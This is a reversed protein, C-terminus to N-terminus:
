RLLTVTGTATLQRGDATTYRCIYAYASPPSPVGRYTGDWGQLIDTTHFICDGWRTYVKLDYDVISKGYGRFLNNPPLGPTFVNPFWMSQSVIPVVARATDACTATGVALMVAVSDDTPAARYLLLSGTDLSLMGNIHWERRHPQTFLDELTLDLHDEDLVRPSLGLLAEVPFVPSLLLTDRHPCGLTDCYAAELIYRTTARPALVLSDGLETGPVWGGPLAADAPTSRLRYCLTDPLSIAYGGSLTCFARAQVSLSPPTEARLTLVVISDAGEAVPLRTTDAAPRSFPVGRWVLPLSSACVTTDHRDICSLALTVTSDCGLASTHIRSYVGPRRYRVGDLLYYSGAAFTDALQVHYTPNVTLYLTTHLCGEIHDYTGSDTLQRGGFSYSEGQCISAHVTDHQLIVTFSQMASDVCAGDALMAYLKVTHPGESFTRVPNTLSSTATDDFVWLYEECPYSTPQTHDANLSIHSNNIFQNHSSCSNLPQRTFAATPYRGGVHTTLTFGTDNDSLLSTLHCAYDGPLTVRLTRSTSLTGSPNALAYWRYRFGEPATLTNNEQWGGCSQAYLQRSPTQLTFYTYSAQAPDSSVYFGSHNSLTLLITQGHFPSLDFGVTQWGGHVRREPTGYHSLNRFYLSDLMLDGYYSNGLPAGTSDSVTIELHPQGLFNFRFDDVMDYHVLLLSYRNTDIRLTYTIAEQGATGGYSLPGWRGLRVSACYGDPVPPTTTDRGYRNDHYHYYYYNGYYYYDSLYTWYYYKYAGQSSAPHVTHRSFRSECGYDVINPQSTPTSPYAHTGTTCRVSDSYISTYNIKQDTHLNCATHFRLTSQSTNGYPCYATVRAEYDSDPPLNDIVISTDTTTVVTGSGEAFGAPGYEVRFHTPFPNREWILRFRTTSLSIGRVSLVPDPCRTQQPTFRYYRYQGPWTRRGVGDWHPSVRHSDANIIALRNSDLLMGVHANRDNHFYQRGYLFTISNDEERFQVQWVNAIYNITHYQEVVFVRHGISDTHFCKYQSPPQNHFGDDFYAFMGSLHYPDHVHVTTDPFNPYPVLNNVDNFYLSGKSFFLLRYFYRDYVYFPFPLNHYNNFASYLGYPSSMDYWWDSNIGSTFVYGHIDAPEVRELHVLMSIYSSCSDACLGYVRVEVVSEPPQNEILLFTDHVIVQTGEGEAFGEPGYEVRFGSYFSCKHWQVRVSTGDSGLRGIHLGAPAACLQDTPEFRYYRYRGPWVSTPATAHDTATHSRPDVIIIHATDLMLGIHVPVASNYERDGYVVTLSNDEECIRIQWYRRSSDPMIREMQLVGIRRGVSDLNLCTSKMDMMWRGTKYGFLGSTVPELKRTSDPFHDTPLDRIQRSFLMTGDPYVVVRNYDRNWISFTFPLSVSVEGPVGWPTSVTMDTWLSSDVGTTFAYGHYINDQAALSGGGALVAVVLAARLWRATRQFLSGM